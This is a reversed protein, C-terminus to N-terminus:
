TCIRLIRHRSVYERIGEQGPFEGQLVVFQTDDFVAPLPMDESVGVAVLETYQLRWAATASCLPRCGGHSRPLGHAAGPRLPGTALAGATM